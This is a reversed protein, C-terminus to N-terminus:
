CAIIVGWCIFWGDWSSLTPRSSRPPLLFRRRSEVTLLGDVRATKFISPSSSVTDHLCQPEHYEALVLISRGLRSGRGAWGTRDDPLDVVNSAHCSARCPWSLNLFDNTRWLGRLSKASFLKRVVPSASCPLSCSVSQQHQSTRTRHM